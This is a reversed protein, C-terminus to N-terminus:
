RLYLSQQQFIHSLIIYPVRALMGPMTGSSPCKHQDASAFGALLLSSDPTGDSRLVAGDQPRIQAKGSSDTMVGMRNLRMPSVGYGGLVFIKGVNEITHAGGFKTDYVQSVGVKIHYGDNWESIHWSEVSPVIGSIGIHGLARPDIDQMMPSRARIKDFLERSEPLDLELNTTHGENLDRSVKDRSGDARPYYSDPNRLGDRTCHTLIIPTINVGYLDNAQEIFRIQALASNGLGVILVSKGDLARSEAKTFSRQNREIISEFNPANTEMKSSKLPLPENGLAVVATHAPESRTGDRLMVSQGGKNSVLSVVEGKVVPKKFKSGLGQNIFRRMHSNSRGYLPNLEEWQVTLHPNNYQVGRGDPDAIWMGGRKGSIDYMTISKDRVGIGRFYVMPIMASLGAGVTLLRSQGLIKLTQEPIRAQHINLETRSRVPYHDDVARKAAQLVNSERLRSSITENIEYPNLLQAEPFLSTLLRGLYLHEALFRVADLNDSTMVSLVAQEANPLKWYGEPRFM